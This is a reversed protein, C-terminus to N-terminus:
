KLFFNRYICYRWLNMSYYADSVKENIVIWGKNKDGLAKILAGGVPVASVILVDKIAKKTEEKGM